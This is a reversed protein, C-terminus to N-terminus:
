EVSDFIVRWSGDVREAQWTEDPDDIGLDVTVTTSGGNVEGTTVSIDDLDIGQDTYSGALTEIQECDIDDPTLVIKKVDACSGDDLATLLKEVADGAADSGSPAPDSGCAAVLLLVAVAVCRRIM